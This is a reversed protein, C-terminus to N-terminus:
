ESYQKLIDQYCKEIQRLAKQSDFRSSNSLGKNIVEERDEPTLNLIKEITKAGETEWNKLNNSSMKSIYFAANGGVETMPAHRTTIVPCGSAQAEAIPWGFGEELSPFLLLSAAQYAQQVATGSVEQLFHIQDSFPSNALIELLDDNPKPGIMVLPIGDPNRQRYKLYIYLVGRRNKYFMDGGIHLIFGNDVNLNSIESFEQRATLPQGPNFDQNLGNYVVKSFQPESGLFKHLDEQTKKSISIFNRGTQYGKKIYSQYAKGSSKLSNEEFDGMASRQALFDHCHVVHPRNAALPVWPGLAHDTFVVISNTPLRRLKSRFENPFVLFQDIYGQWKKLARGLSIKSVVPRATWIETDHGLQALGKHLWNAYLPMSVSDLFPPHTILIINM